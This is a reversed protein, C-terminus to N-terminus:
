GSTWNEPPLEVQVYESTLSKNTNMRWRNRFHHWSVLRHGIVSDRWIAPPMNHGAADCSAQKPPIM